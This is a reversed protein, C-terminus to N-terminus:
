SRAAPLERAYNEGLPGLESLRRNCNSLAMEQVESESMQGRSYSDAYLFACQSAADAGRGVKHSAAM